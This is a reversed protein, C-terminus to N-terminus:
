EKSDNRLQRAAARLWDADAGGVPRAWSSSVITSAPLPADAGAPAIAVGGPHAAPEGTDIADFGAALAFAGDAPALLLTRAGYFAALRAMARLSADADPEPAPEHVALVDCGAELVARALDEFDEQAEDLARGSASALAVPGPVVAALDYARHMAALRQLADFATGSAASVPVHIADSEVLQRAAQLASVMVSASAAYGAETSGSREEALRWLYPAFVRRVARGALAAALPGRARVNGHGTGGM